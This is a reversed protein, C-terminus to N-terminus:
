RRRRPNFSPVPKQHTDGNESPVVLAAQQRKTLFNTADCRDLMKQYKGTLLDDRGCLCIQLVIRPDTIGREHIYKMTADIWKPKGKVDPRAVERELIKRLILEDPAPCLIPAGFRSALAGSMMGSFLRWDNVTALVLSKVTRQISCRFNTKRIEARHDLVGLLFKLQGEDAKEIEEIAIIRPITDRETIDKIAGAQSTLTGDLHLISDPGVMAGVARVIETKGSNHVVFGEAVFNRYPDSCVIDYTKKRGVRRVDVVVDLEAYIQIHKCSEEMHLLGHDQPSILVLNGPHDNTLDEDLHHVHYGEPITWLKDIVEPTETNLFRTYKKLRMGNQYAELAARSKRVRYYTCGNVVKIRGNPHYKVTIEPRTTPNSEGTSKVRGSNVYVKDGVTIASLRKFGKKTRFQHDLTAELSKGSRTTIRYVEKKGSYVVDKIKNLRIVGEDTMSQIFFEGGPKWQPGKTTQKKGHFRKYLREIPGGKKNRLEGDENRIVFRVHSCGAICAPPGVLLRHFRDNWNSKMGAHVASLVLNVQDERGYIHSFFTLWNKPVSVDAYKEPKLTGKVDRTSLVEWQVKRAEATITNTILEYEADVISQERERKSIMTVNLQIKYRHGKGDDTKEPEWGNGAVTCVWGKNAMVRTISKTRVQQIQQALKQVDLTKGSEKILTVRRVIKAM